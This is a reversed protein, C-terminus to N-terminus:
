EELQQVGLASYFIKQNLFSGLTLPISFLIQIAQALNQLAM